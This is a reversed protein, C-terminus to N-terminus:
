IIISGSHINKFAYGLKKELENFQNQLEQNSKMMELVLNNFEKIEGVSILTKTKNIDLINDLNNSEINKLKCSQRHTYLGQRHTYEKGCKCLHKKKNQLNNDNKKHKSTSTHRDWESKKFCKFECFQCYFIKSINITNESITESLNINDNNNNIMLEKDFYVSEKVCINPKLNPIPQISNLTANLLIFYEQEKERAEYNNKCNFFNIIEMKWNEWGGNNRIVEYLKCKYNNSKENICSQKHARMRKVFNVTHGVYIEKITNNKCTIKYIITNSYDLKKKM